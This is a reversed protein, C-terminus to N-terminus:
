TLCQRERSYRLIHQHIITWTVLSVILLFLVLQTSYIIFISL